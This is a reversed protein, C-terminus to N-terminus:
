SPADLALQDAGLDGLPRQDGAREVDLDPLGAGAGATPRMFSQRKQSASCRPVSSANPMKTTM